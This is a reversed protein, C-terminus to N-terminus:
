GAVLGSRLAHAVAEARGRVALKRYVSTTHHMVTKPSIHLEDAIRQNTHGQVLEALIELERGTLEPNARPGRKRRPTEAPPLDGPALDAPVEAALERALRWAADVADDWQLERGAQVLGACEQAGLTDGLSAVARDYAAHHGPSTMPLLEASRAVLSGHLIAADTPRTGAVLVVLGSMAWWTARDYGTERGIDIARFYWRTAMPDGDRAAIAAVSMAVISQVRRNGVQECQDFLAEVAPRAAIGRDMDLLLRTYTADALGREHGSARAAEIARDALEAAQERDRDRVALGQQNFLEAQWWMTDPTRCRDLGDTAVEEAATIEGSCRLSYTLHVTARLHAWLDSSASLAQRARGIREVPDEAVSGLARSDLLEFALRGAWAEGNAAVESPACRELCWDLRLLGEAAPGRVLWYRGLAATARVAEAVRGAATLHDLAARLNALERDIETSWRRAQRSELGRGGELAFAGFFEAHRDAIVEEEGAERLADRAFLGITVPLRFRPTRDPLTVPEALHLDTLDTLADLLQGPRVGDNCVADMADLSWGGDFVSLHRLLRRADDDLLDYSFRIATALDRHRSVVDGPGRRLLEFDGREDGGDLRSLLVQPPFQRTYAAVLEIALPLGDLRRCIEGIAALSEQDPEFRSSVAAARECFLAVSAVGSIDAQGDAGAIPPAPLALPGLEVVHEGLVDLRRRSTVLVAVKPCRASLAVIFPAAAAVQEFNDVVVLMHRYRLAAVVRDTPDTGPEAALDLARCVEGAVLSPDRVDAVSVFAAGDAFEASLRIAAEIALRTKGVGGPGTVTVHAEGAARLLELLETVEQDRGLLTTRVGPLDLGGITWSQDAM